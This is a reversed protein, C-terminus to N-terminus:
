AVPTLEPVGDMALGGLLAAAPGVGLAVLAYPLPVHRGIDDVTSSAARRMSWMRLILRFGSRTPRTSWLGAAKIGAELLALKFGETKYFQRYEAAEVSAM